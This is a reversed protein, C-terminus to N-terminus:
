LPKQAAIINQKQLCRNNRFKIQCFWILSLRVFVCLLWNVEPLHWYRFHSWTHLHQEHRDQGKSKRPSTLRSFSSNWSGTYSVITVGKVCFKLSKTFLRHISSIHHQSPNPNSASSWYKIGLNLERMEAQFLGDQELGSWQDRGYRQASPPCYIANYSHAFFNKRNNEKGLRQFKWGNDVAGETEGAIRTPSRILSM